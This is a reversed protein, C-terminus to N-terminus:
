NVVELTADNRKYRDFSCRIVKSVRKASKLAVSFCFLFLLRPLHVEVAVLGLDDREEVSVVVVFDSLQLCCYLSKLVSIMQVTLAQIPSFIKALTSHCLILIVSLYM